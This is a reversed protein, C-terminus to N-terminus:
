RPQSKSESACELSGRAYGSWRTPIEPCESPHGHRDGHLHDRKVVLSRM